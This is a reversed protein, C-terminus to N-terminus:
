NKRGGDGADNTSTSSGALRDIFSNLILKESQPTLSEKIKREAVNLALESAFGQLEQRAAKVASEMEMSANALIKTAETEAEKEIRARELRAEEMGSQKMKALERDLNGMREEMAKLRLNSQEIAESSRLMDERILRARENLFPILGKKIGYIILGALVAFNLYHSVEAFLSHEEGGAHEGEAAHESAAAPHETAAEGSPPHEQAMLPATFLSFAPQAPADHTHSASLEHASATGIFAALSFIWFVLIVPLRM